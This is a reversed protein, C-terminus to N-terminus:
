IRFLPQMLRPLLERFRLPADTAVLCICPRDRGAMPQHDIDDHATEVDGRGFRGERDSFSGDLVLTMELGRHGHEPVCRGPPIFLLRLSGGSDCSLIQQRMGGGLARWRPPKGGMAEFVPAPFLADAPFQRVALACSDLAAMVKERTRKSLPVRNDHELAASAQMEMAELQHRCRACLALHAAVVVAFHHPLHGKAHASILWVPVHHAIARM